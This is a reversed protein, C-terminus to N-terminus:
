VSLHRYYYPATAPPPPSSATAVRMHSIMGKSDASPVYVRLITTAFTLTAKANSGPWAAATRVAMTADLFENAGTAGTVHLLDTTTDRIYWDWYPDTGYASSANSPDGVALYIDYDGAAPLDLRFLRNSGGSFICGAIRADNSANRDRQSFGADEYGGVVGTAYTHPYAEGLVAYSGAPDTVYGLSSRFDFGADISM